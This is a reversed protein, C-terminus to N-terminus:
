MLDPLDYLFIFEEPTCGVDVMRMNILLACSSEVGCKMIDNTITKPFVEELTMEIEEHPNNPMGFIEVITICDQPMIKLLIVRIANIMRM